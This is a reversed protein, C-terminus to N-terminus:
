EGLHLNGQHFLVAPGFDRGKGPWSAVLSSAFWLRLVKKWPCFRFIVSGETQASVQGGAGVRPIEASVKGSVARCSSEQWKRERGERRCHSTGPQERIFRRCALRQRLAQM